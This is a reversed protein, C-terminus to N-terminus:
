NLNYLDLSINFQVNIMTPDISIECYYFSAPAKTEIGTNLDNLKYKDGTQQILAYGFLVRFTLGSLGQM